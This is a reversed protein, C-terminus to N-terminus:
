KFYKALEILFSFTSTFYANIKAQSPVFILCVGNWYKQSFRCFLLRYTIPQSVHLQCTNLIYEIQQLSLMFTIAFLCIYMADTTIPCSLSFM